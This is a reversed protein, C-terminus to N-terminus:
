LSTAGAEELIGLVEDHVLGNSALINRSETTYDSGDLNSIRGGAETVIVEGAAIDWSNLDFSFYGTLRGCAIWSLVM